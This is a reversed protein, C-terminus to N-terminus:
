RSSYQASAFPKIPLDLNIVTKNGTTDINGGVAITPSVNIFLRHSATYIYTYVQGSYSLEKNSKDTSLLIYDVPLNTTGYLTIAPVGNITGSVDPIGTKTCAAFLLLAFLIFISVILKM